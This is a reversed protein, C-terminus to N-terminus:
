VNTRTCCQLISRPLRLQTHHSLQHLSAAHHQNTCSRRSTATSTHFDTPDATMRVVVDGGRSAATDHRWRGPAPCCRRAARAASVTRGRRHRRGRRGRRRALRRRRCTWTTSAAPAVGQRRSVTWRWRCQTPPVARHDAASRPHPMARYTRRSTTTLDTVSERRDRTVSIANHERRNRQTLVATTAHMILTQIMTWSVRVSTTRNPVHLSPRGTTSRAWGRLDLSPGTVTIYPSPSLATRCSSSTVIPLTHSHAAATTCAAMDEGDVVHGVPDLAHVYIVGNGVFGVCFLCEPEILRGVLNSQTWM